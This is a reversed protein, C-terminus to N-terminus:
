STGPPILDPILRRPKPIVRTHIDASEETPRDDHRTTLDKTRVM